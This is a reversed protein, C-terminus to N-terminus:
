TEDAYRRAASRGASVPVRARRRPQDGTRELRLNPSRRTHTTSRVHRYKYSLAHSLLGHDPEPGGSVIQAAEGGICSLHRSKLEPPNLAPKLRVVPLRHWRGTEANALNAHV